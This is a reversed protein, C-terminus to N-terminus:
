DNACDCLSKVRNYIAVMQEYWGLSYAELLLRQYMRILSINKLCTDDAWKEPCPSNTSCFISNAIAKECAVIEYAQLYYDTAIYASPLNSFSSDVLEWSDEWGSTVGPEIDAVVSTLAYYAHSNQWVAEGAFYTSANNWDPITYLTVIYVGGDSVDITYNHVAIAAPTILENYPSVSSLIYVSGNPKTVEIRIFTSFDAADHNNDIEYNSRDRVIATEGLDGDSVSVVCSFGGATIDGTIYLIINTNKEPCSFDTNSFLAQAVLSVYKSQPTADAPVDWTLTVPVVVGTYGVAITATLIKPNSSIESYDWSINPTAPQPNAFSLIDEDVPLKFEVTTEGLTSFEKAISFQIIKTGSTDPIMDNIVHSGQAFFAPCELEESVQTVSIKLEIFGSCLSNWGGDFLEWKLSNVLLSEDGGYNVTFPIPLSMDEIVNSDIYSQDYKFTIHDAPDVRSVRLIGANNGTNIVVSNNFSQSVDKEVEISVNESEPAISCPIISATATLTVPIEIDINGDTEFIITGTKVGAVLPTFRFSQTISKGIPIPKIIPFYTDLEAIISPSIVIGTINEIFTGSNHIAISEDIYSGIVSTLSLSDPVALLSEEVIDWSFSGSEIVVMKPMDSPDHLLVSVNFLETINEKGANAYGVFSINDNTLLDLQTSFEYVGARLEDDVINEVWAGNKYLSINRDAGLATALVYKVKFHYAGAAPAVFVKGSLSKNGGWLSSTHNQTKTSICARNTGQVIDDLSLIVADTTIEVHDIIGASIIVDSNARTAPITIMDSTCTIGLIDFSFEAAGVSDPVTVLLSLQKTGGNEIRYGSDDAPLATTIVVSTVKVLNSFIPYWGNIVDGIRISGDNSSNICSHTCDNTLTLTITATNSNLPAITNGLDIEGIDDGPIIEGNLWTINGFTIGVCSFAADEIAEVITNAAFKFYSTYITPPDGVTQYTLIFYRDSIDIEAIPTLEIYFEISSGASLAKSSLGTVFLEWISSNRGYVAVGVNSGDNISLGTITMPNASTNKLLVHAINKKNLMLAKEFDIFPPSLLIIDSNGIITFDENDAGSDVTYLSTAILEINGVIDGVNATGVPIVDLYLPSLPSFSRWDIILEGTWKGSGETWVMGDINFDAVPQMNIVDITITFDNPSPDTLAGDTEIKLKGIESTRLNSYGLVTSISLEVM